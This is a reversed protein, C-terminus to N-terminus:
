GGKVSHVRKQFADYLRRTLPGPRGSGVKAGDVRVIPILERLTSTLFVEDARYLDKPFLTDETVEIGEGAAVDLVTARTIGALIGSSLPPTRIREGRAVFINSTAGELIEGSPGLLVAEYGGKQKAEHVALLSTLYNSAKTGATRPDDVPRSARLCVVAVGDEYLTAPQPKLPACIVLRTPDGATTPDYGLPGPGRTIIVRVYSEPNAAATLTEAIEDSLRDLTVPMRILLRECSRSLRELHPREEFPVGDYTRLVEFASDGYLFGRDFVSVTAEEERFIVGNIAVRISM